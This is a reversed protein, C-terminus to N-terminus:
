WSRNKLLYKSDSLYISIKNVFSNNKVCVNNFLLRKECLYKSACVGFGINTGHKKMTNFKLNVFFAPQRSVVKEKKHLHHAPSPRCVTTFTGYRQKVNM